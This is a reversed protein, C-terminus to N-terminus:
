EPAERPHQGVKGPPQALVEADLGYVKAVDEALLRRVYATRSMGLEEARRGALGALRNTMTLSLMKHDKNMALARTAPMGLARSQWSNDQPNVVDAYQALLADVPDTTM